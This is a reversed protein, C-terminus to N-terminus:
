AQFLFNLILHLSITGRRVVLILFTKLLWPAFVIYAMTVVAPEAAAM